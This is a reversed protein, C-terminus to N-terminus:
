PQPQQPRGLYAMLSGFLILVAGWWLNVNIGLVEAGVVIGHLALVLGCGLFLLGIAFRLDFTM